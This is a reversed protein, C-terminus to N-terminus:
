GGGSRDGKGAGQQVAQHQGQGLLHLLPPLHRRVEVLLVALLVLLEPLLELLLSVVLM